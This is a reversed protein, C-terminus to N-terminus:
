RGKGGDPSRFSGLAERAADQAAVRKSRGRGRGLVRGGVLVEVLFERAHDPGEVRVTEYLPLCKLRQQTLEQLSTKADEERRAPDEGRCDAAFLREVVDRAAEFGGDVFVAGLVAELVAALITPKRRGGTKEEGKGLVVLDALGLQRAKKALAGTNVLRARCRTLEGETAEPLRRILLDTVALGLVADGLFELREIQKVRGSALVSPHTLAHRLLERRGFRYGLQVALADAADTM